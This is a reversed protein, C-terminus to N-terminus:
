FHLYFCTITWNSLRTWSKAVGHVMVWWAGRDMPNELCSYRLPNGNGEGPSRGSESRSSSDGANCASEKGSLWWPLGPRRSLVRRHSRVVRTHNVLDELDPKVWSQLDDQLMTVAVASEATERSCTSGFRASANSQSAGGLPSPQSERMRSSWAWINGGELSMRSCGMQPPRSCNRSVEESKNKRNMTIRM